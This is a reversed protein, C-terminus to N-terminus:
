KLGQIKKEKKVKNLQLSWSWYFSFLITFGRKYIFDFFSYSHFILSFKQKPTFITTKVQAIFQECIENDNKECNSSSFYERCVRIQTKGQVPQGFTYRIPSPTTIIVSLWYWLWIKHDEESIIYSTELSHTVWDLWISNPIRM